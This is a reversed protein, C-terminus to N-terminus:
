YNYQNYIKMTVLLQTEDHLIKCICMSYNQINKTRLESTIKYKSKKYEINDNNLNNNKQMNYMDYENSTLNKKFDICIYCSSNFIYEYTETDDEKSIGIDVQSYM